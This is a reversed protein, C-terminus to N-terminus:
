GLYKLGLCEPESWNSTQTQAIPTMLHFVAHRAEDCKVLMNIIGRGHIYVGTTGVCYKLIPALFVNNKAAFYDKVSINNSTNNFVDIYVELIWM